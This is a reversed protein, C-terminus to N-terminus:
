ERNYQLIVICFYSFTRQKHFLFMHAPWERCIDLHMSAQM